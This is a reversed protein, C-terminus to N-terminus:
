HDHLLLDKINSENENVQEYLQQTANEQNM